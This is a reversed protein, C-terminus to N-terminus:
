VSVGAGQCAACVNLLSYYVTNCVCETAFTAGIGIYNSNQSAPPINFDIFISSKVPYDDYM